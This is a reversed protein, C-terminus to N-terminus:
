RSDLHNGRNRLTLLMLILLLLMGHTILTTTLYTNQLAFVMMFSLGFLAPHLRLTDIFHFIATTIIIYLVVGPYGFNMFGDGLFGTNCSMLPADFFLEGMLFPPPSAYPYDSMLGPFSHSMFLPNGQFFEFYAHTIYAQTFLSRRVLLSEPLLYDFHSTVTTILIATIMLLMFWTIQRNHNRWLAFYVLPILGILLTKHPTLLFLYGTALFAIAALLYRRTIIGFLLMVPLVARSLQGFAYVAHTPITDRAQHRLDYLVSQDSVLVIGPLSARFHMVLPLLLLVLSAVLIWVRTKDPWVPPYWRNFYEVTGRPLPMRILLVFLTFSLPIAPNVPMYMYLILNPLQMMIIVLVSLVHMYGSPRQWVISCLTIVLLILTLIIRKADPDAVFNLHFYNPVLFTVYRTTLLGFLLVVLLAHTYSHKSLVMHLRGPEGAASLM